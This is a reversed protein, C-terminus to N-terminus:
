IPSACLDQALRGVLEATVSEDLGSDRCIDKMRILVGGICTARAVSTDPEDRGSSDVACAGVPGADTTAAGRLRSHRIDDDLMGGVGVDEEMSSSPQRFESVEAMEYDVTWGPPRTNRRPRGSTPPQMPGKGGAHGPEAPPPSQPVPTEPRTPEEAEVPMAGDGEDPGVEPSFTVRRAVSDRLPIGATRRPTAQGARKGTPTLSGPRAPTQNEQRPTQVVRDMHRATGDPPTAATVEQRQGVLRAPTQGGRATQSVPDAGVARIKRLFKRNRATTRRSGDMRVLYQDFEDNVEIVTGTRSWRTKATGAQNQVRVRDGVDLRALDHGKADIKDVMQGLRTRMVTERESWNELWRKDVPSKNSILNQRRAYPQPLADRLRRGFLLEAPSVGTDRDPTNRLLLLARAFTDRDLKGDTGVNDRLARKVTKVAVEARGNSQAHYASSMRLRVGWRELFKGFELGSYEPGGDNAVEVPVGFAMFTEKMTAILGATGSGETGPDARRVDVWGTFRDVTVLYHTGELDLYDSCIMEFPYTPIAPTAAAMPPQSPAVTDCTGCNNRTKAIDSTIGPWFVSAQARATM